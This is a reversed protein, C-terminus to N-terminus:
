GVGRVRRVGIYPEGPEGRKTGAALADEIVEVSVGLELLRQAVVARNLSERPTSQQVQLRILNGVGDETGLLDFSAGPYESHWGLLRELLRKGSDKKAATMVTEADRNVEYAIAESVLGQATATDHSIGVVTPEDKGKASSVLQSM